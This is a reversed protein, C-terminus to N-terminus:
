IDCAGPTSDAKTTELLCDIFNPVRELDLHVKLGKFQIGVHRWASLIDKLMQGLFIAFCNFLYAGCLVFNLCTSCGHTVGKVRLTAFVDVVGKVRVSEQM